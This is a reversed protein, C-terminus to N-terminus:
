EKRSGSPASLKAPPLESEVPSEEYEQEPEVVVHLGEYWDRWSKISAELDEKGPPDDPLVEGDARRSLFRLGDRAARYVSPEPDRLAEILIPAFRFDRLRALGWLGAERVAPVSHRTMRRLGSHNKGLKEIIEQPRANEMWAAAGEDLDAAEVDNLSALVEDVNTALAARYRAKQRVIYDPPSGDESPLGKGGSMTAEGLRTIRIKELTKETSRSLFLLAFSTDVPSEYQSRWSGDSSQGSVLYNAGTKYWDVSGFTSQKLIAGLREVGYLYYHLPGIPKDITFHQNIWQTGLKIAEEAESRTVQAVYKSVAKKEEEKEVPILLALEGTDTNRGKGIPAFGLNSRCAIMSFLGGVSTSHQVSGQAVRTEGPPKSPHYAFGGAIDQRTVHWHLAKDWVDEPVELGAAAAEWLGLVAYQSQSTDGGRGSGYDWPGDEVQRSLLFRGLALIQPQYRERDASALAMVMVGAEYNDTGPAAEPRYGSIDVTRALDDIVKAFVPDDLKSGSKSLALAVLAREGRRPVSPLSQMLFARGREIAAQVDQGVAQDLCSLGALLFLWGHKWRPM